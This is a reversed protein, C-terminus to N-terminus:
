PQNSSRLEPVSHSYVSTLFHNKKAKMRATGGGMEKKKEIRKRDGQNKQTWTNFNLCTREEPLM